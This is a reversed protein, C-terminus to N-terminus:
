MDIDLGNATGNAAGSVGGPCKGSGGAGGYGGGGGGSSGGGDGGAGPGTAPGYGAFDGNINGAMIIKRAKFSLIQGAGVNVTSGAQIDILDHNQNGSLSVVGTVTLVDPFVCAFNSTAPASSNDYFMFFTKVANAALSPIKVWIKTTTTNIGSEIWYCLSTNCDSDVFRIDNGSADMKGQSIPTQTDITILEQINTSSTSIASNDIAIEKVYDWGPLACSACQSYLNNVTILCTFFLYM